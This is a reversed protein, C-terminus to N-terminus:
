PSENRLRALRAKLEELAAGATPERIRNTM